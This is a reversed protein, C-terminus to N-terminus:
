VCRGAPFGTGRARRSRPGGSGGAERRGARAAPGRRSGTGRVVGAGARLLGGAQACFVEVEALVRQRAQVALAALPAGAREPLLCCPQQGGQEARCPRRGRGACRHEGGVPLGEGAVADVLDDAPACGAEVVRAGSPLDARVGEPVGGGDVQEFGADFDVHDSAPESVGVQGRGVAVGLDVGLGLQCGQLGGFRV